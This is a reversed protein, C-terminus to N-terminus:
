PSTNGAEPEVPGAETRTLEELWRARVNEGAIRYFRIAEAYRKEAENVRGLNYPLGQRWPTIPGISSKTEFYERATEWKGTQMALLGLWYGAWANVQRIQIEGIQKERPPLGDLREQIMRESAMADVLSTAAGTVGDFRGRFYGIRGKWLSYDGPLVLDKSKDNDRDKVVIERGTMRFPLMQMEFQEPIAITEYLARFPYSWLGIEALGECQEFRDRLELPPTYLTMTQEGELQNELLKQRMAASGVSVPLLAKTKRLDEATITYRDGLLDDLLSPEAILDSLTAIEPFELTGSAGLRPLPRTKSPETRSPETKSPGPIPLGEHLFFTYVKDDILVGIGWYMALDNNGESSTEPIAVTESGATESVLAEPAATENSATETAANGSPISEPSNERIPSMLLCCDIRQQRLLEMFVWARDWLTGSGLLLTQWPLQYPRTGVPRGNDLIIEDRLDVNRVTWDYLSAARRLGEQDEGRAWNSISRMWLSEKLYDIDYACFALSDIDVTEAFVHFDRAVEEFIALNAQRQQVVARIVGESLNPREALSALVGRLATAEASFREFVPIEGMVVLNKMAAILEDLLAVLKRCDEAANSTKVGVSTEGVPEGSAPTKGAAAAGQLVQLMKLTQQLKEDTSRCQAAFDQLKPDARWKPDKERNRAWTNLRDRTQIMMEYGPMGALDPHNEMSHLLEMSVGFVERDRRAKEATSSGPSRSRSRTPRNLCIVIILGLVLLLGIGTRYNLFSRLNM